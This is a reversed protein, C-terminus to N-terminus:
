AVGDSKLLDFLSYFVPKGLRLMYEVENDAGGSEGPIRLLCDCVDLWELDMKSWYKYDHPSMFHWFHNLLPCFPLYGYERLNEAMFISSSVNVAVDGKTYPSAIYVTKTM